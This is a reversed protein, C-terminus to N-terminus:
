WDFEPYSSRRHAGLTHRKPDRFSLQERPVGALLM